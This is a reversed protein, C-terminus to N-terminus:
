GRTLEEGGMFVPSISCVKPSEIFVFRIGIKEEINIKNIM